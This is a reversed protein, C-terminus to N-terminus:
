NYLNMTNDIGNRIFSLVIETCVKLSKSIKAEEDELFNGLVFDVKDSTHKKNGIGIGFRLRPYDSTNLCHEIDKLGNHGGFSGGRKLKIKGFNINLDDTLILVNMIEINKKKIWYRVSKGSLNMLTSPKLLFIKKGGFKLIGLQGLKSEKLEINKEKALFDIIRFGINHRTKEYKAGINGLGVILFKNNEIAKSDRKFWKFFGTM